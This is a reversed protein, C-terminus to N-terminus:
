AGFSEYAAVMETGGDANSRDRHRLNCVQSRRTNHRQLKGEVERTKEIRAEVEADTERKGNDMIRPRGEKWYDKCQRFMQLLIKRVYWEPREEPRRGEPQQMRLEAHKRLLIAIVTQNWANESKGNMDFHLDDADPGPAGRSSRFAQVETPSASRHNLFEDEQRIDFVKRFLRRCHDQSDHTM